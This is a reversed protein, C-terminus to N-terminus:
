DQVVPEKDAEELATMLNLQAQFVQLQQEIQEVQDKLTARRVIMNKVVETLQAATPVQTKQESM